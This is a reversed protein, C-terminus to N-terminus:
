CLCRPDKVTSEMVPHTKAEDSRTVVEPGGKQKTGSKDPEVIVFSVDSESVVHDVTQDADVSIVESAPGSSTLAHIHQIKAVGAKVKANMTQKKEQESEAALRRVRQAETFDVIGQKGVEQVHKQFQQVVEKTGGGHTACYSFLWKALGAESMGKCAGLGSLKEMTCSEEPLGLATAFRAGFDKDPNNSVVVIHQKGKADIHVFGHVFTNDALKFSVPRQQGEKLDKFWGGREAETPPKGSLDVVGLGKVLNDYQAGAVEHIEKLAAAQDKSHTDLTGTTGLRLNLEAELAQLVANTKGPDVINKAHQWAVHLLGVPMEKVKGDKQAQLFAALAKAGVTEIRKVGDLPNHKSLGTAAYAHEGAKFLVDCAAEGLPGGQAALDVLSALAIPEANAHCKETFVAEGAGELYGTVKKSLVSNQQYEKMAESVKFHWDSKGVSGQTQNGNANNSLISSSSIM